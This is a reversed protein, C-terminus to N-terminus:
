LALLINLTVLVTDFEIDKDLLLVILLETDLTAVTVTPRAESVARKLTVELVTSEAV